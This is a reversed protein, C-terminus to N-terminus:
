VCWLECRAGACMYATAHKAGVQEQKALEKESKGAVGVGPAFLKPDLDSLSRTVAAAAAATATAAIAAAQILVSGWRRSPLGQGRALCCM